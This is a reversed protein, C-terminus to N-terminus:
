RKRNKFVDMKANPDNSTFIIVDGTKNDIIKHYFRRRYIKSKRKRERKNM